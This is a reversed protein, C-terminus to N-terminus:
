REEQRIQERILVWHTVRMGLDIKDGVLRKRAFMHKSMFIRDRVSVTM